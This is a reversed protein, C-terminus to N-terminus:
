EKPPRWTWSALTTAVISACPSRRSSVKLSASKRRKAGSISITVGHYHSVVLGTVQRPEILFLADAFLDYTGLFDRGMGIPWSAPTLDLALAQEIEDLLDFRDQGNAIWSTSLPSSRCTACGAAEFLKRTQEEIGGRYRQRRRQAGHGRQRGRDPHPLHGRQFGPQGPTDLLNFALGENSL